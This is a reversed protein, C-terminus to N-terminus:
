FYGNFTAELYIFMIIINTVYVFNTYNGIYDTLWMWWEVNTALKETDQIALKM